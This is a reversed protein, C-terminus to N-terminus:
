PKACDRAMEPLDFCEEHGCWPFLALAKHSDSNRYYVIVHMVPMSEPAPGDLPPPKRRPTFARHRGEIRTGDPLVIQTGVSRASRLRHWRRGDFHLGIM